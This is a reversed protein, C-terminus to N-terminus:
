HLKKRGSCSSDGIMVRLHHARSPPGPPLENLHVGFIQSMVGRNTTSENRPTLRERGDLLSETRDPWLKQYHSTLSYYAPLSLAITFPLPLQLLATDTKNCVNKHRRLDFDRTPYHLPM